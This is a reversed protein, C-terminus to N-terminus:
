TTQNKGFPWLKKLGSVLKRFLGRITAFLGRRNISAEESKAEDKEMSLTLDGTSTEHIDLVQGDPSLAFEQNLGTKPDQICVKGETVTIEQGRANQFKATGHRGIKMTHHAGNRIVIRDSEMNVQLGSVVQGQQSFLPRNGANFQDETVTQNTQDFAFGFRLSNPTSPAFSVPVM